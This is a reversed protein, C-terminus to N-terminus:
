MSWDLSGEKWEYLLGMILVMLFIISAMLSYIYNSYMMILPLPMLLVIEIDFVIFIIALLFFRMSFPIRATSKPDFGCEFPSSKERDMFSRSGLIWATLLIIMPVIISISSSIFILNM